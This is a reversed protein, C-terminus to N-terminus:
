TKNKEKGNRVVEELLHNMKEELVELSYQSKILEFGKQGLRDQLAKDQLLQVTKQAFDQPNDAILLHEGPVVGLGETGLSTSVVPKRMALAQCIKNRFGTGTRMPCVVVTVKEIYDRLDDVYGTIIIQNDKALRRLSYPSAPGVIYLKVSPIMKRILPLMGLILYRAADINVFAGMVGSFLISNPEVELGRPRYYETDVGTSIYALSDLPETANTKLFELDVPSCLITRNFKKSIDVEYKLTKIYEELYLAKRFINAKKLARQYHLSVADSLDLVKPIGNIVEGYQAMRKRKIYVLDFKERKLIEKIKEAMKGSKYYAVRLPLPSFLHLACNFYSHWPALKVTEVSACFGEIQEIKRKKQESDIFSLLYIQHRKSLYRLINYARIRSIRSPLTPTIFLIKM